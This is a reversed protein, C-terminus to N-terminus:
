SAKEGVGRRCCNSRWQSRLQCREIISRGLLRTCGTLSEVRLPQLAFIDRYDANSPQTDIGIVSEIIVTLVATISLKRDM